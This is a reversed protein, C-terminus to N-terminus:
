CKRYPFFPRSRNISYDAGGVGLFDRTSAESNVLQHKMNLSISEDTHNAQGFYKGVEDINTFSTTNSLPAGMMGFMNIMDNSSSTCGMQASSMHYPDHRPHGLGGQSPNQDYDSCYLSSLSCSLQDGKSDQQLEEEKLGCMTAVSAVASSTEPYPNM